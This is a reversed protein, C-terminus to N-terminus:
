TKNINAAYQTLNKLLTKFKGHQRFRSFNQRVAFRKIQRNAAETNCKIQEFSLNCIRADFTASLAKNQRIKTPVAFFAFISCAIDWYRDNNHHVFYTLCMQLMVTGVGGGIAPQLFSGVRVFFKKNKEVFVLHHYTDFFSFKKKKYIKRKIIYIYYLIYINEEKRLYLPQLPSLNRKM